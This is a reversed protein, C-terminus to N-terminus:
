ARMFSLLETCVYINDVSVQFRIFHHKTKVTESELIPRSSLEHTRPIRVELFSHVFGQESGEVVMHSDSPNTTAESLSSEPLICRLKTFNQFEFDVVLLYFIINRLAKKVTKLSIIDILVPCRELKIIFCLARFTKVELLDVFLFFYKFWFVFM